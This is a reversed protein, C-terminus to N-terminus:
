PAWCCPRPPPTSANASAPSTFPALLFSLFELLSQKKLFAQEEAEGDGDEDWEQLVPKGEDYHLWLSPKGELTLDFTEMSLQGEEFLRHVEPTGDGNWDVKEERPTSDEAHVYFVDPTGDQNL